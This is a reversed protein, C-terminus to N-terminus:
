ASCADARHNGPSVSQATPAKVLAVITDGPQVDYPTNATVPALRNRADIVFLPTTTKGYQKRFAAYDFEESLRTAKIVYGEALRKEIANHTM